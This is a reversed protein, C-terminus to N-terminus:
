ERHLDANNTASNSYGKNQREGASEEIAMPQVPKVAPPSLRALGFAAIITGGCIARGASYRKEEFASQLLM